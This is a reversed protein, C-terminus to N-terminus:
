RPCGDKDRAFPAILCGYSEEYGFEFKPGHGLKEYYDIRNGIFKFGSVASACSVSSSSTAEISVVSDYVDEVVDEIITTASLYYMLIRKNILM